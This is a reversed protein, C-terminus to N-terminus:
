LPITFLVSTFLHHKKIMLVKGKKTVCLSTYLQITVCIYLVYELYLYNEYLTSLNFIAFEYDFALIIRKYSVSEVVVTAFKLVIIKCAKNSNSIKIALKSSQGSVTKKWIYKYALLPLWMWGM